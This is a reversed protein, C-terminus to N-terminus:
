TSSLNSVLLSLSRQIREVSTANQLTRSWADPTLGCAKKSISRTVPLPEEVGVVPLRGSEM